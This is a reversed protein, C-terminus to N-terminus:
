FVVNMMLNRTCFVFLIGIKFDRRAAKFLRMMMLLYEFYLKKQRFINLSWGKYICIHSPFFTLIYTVLYTLIMYSSSTFEFSNFTHKFCFFINQKDAVPKFIM